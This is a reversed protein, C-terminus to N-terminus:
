KFSVNVKLNDKLKPVRIKDLLNITKFLSKINYKEEKVIIILVIKKQNNVFKFNFIKKYISKCM